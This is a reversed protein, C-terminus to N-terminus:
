SPVGFPVPSGARGLCARELPGEHWSRHFSVTPSLGISPGQQACILSGTSPRKTTAPSPRKTLLDKACLSSGRISKALRGALFFFFLNQTHKNFLFFVFGEKSFAEQFVVRLTRQIRRPKSRGPRVQISPINIQTQSSFTLRFNLQWNFFTGWSM